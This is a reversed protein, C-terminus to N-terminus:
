REASVHYLLLQGMQLLLLLLLLAVPSPMLSVRLVYPIVIVVGKGVDAGVFVRNDRTDNRPRADVAAATYPTPAAAAADTATVAAVVVASPVLLTM